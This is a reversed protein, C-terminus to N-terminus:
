HRPEGGLRLYREGARVQRVRDGTSGYFDRLALWADALEAFDREITGAVILAGERESLESLSRLAFLRVSLDKPLARVCGDVAQVAGATNGAAREVEFLRRWLEVRRPEYLLLGELTRVKQAHLNLETFRAEATAAAPEDGLEFLVRSLLFWARPDFPDLDRAAEAAARAEATRGLDFLAQGRWFLVELHAPSKELCADFLELARETHGLRLHSLAFGRLAEVSAADAALVAEYQALARAYDGLSYYSHALAQTAGVASPVAALFREFTRACDGYRRLRFYTVGLQYLAPPFDPERELMAWFTAVASTYDGEIYARSGDRLPAQQAEPIVDSPQWERWRGEAARPLKAPDRALVEAQAAAKADAQAVGRAPAAPALCLLALLTLARM